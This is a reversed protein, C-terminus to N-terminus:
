IDIGGSFIKSEEKAKHGEKVLDVYGEFSRQHLYTFSNQIYSLKNTGTKYSNEKKQFIELKLAEILQEVTIEGEGIIKNFKLKCDEKKAKLARTGQFKKGKYEFTDSSPFQSWWKDFDDDKPKEKKYKTIMSTGSIFSLINKGEITIKSDITLLGKRELTARLIEIKANDPVDEGQEIAKLIWLMDLSYGQKHIQEFKNADIRLEIM